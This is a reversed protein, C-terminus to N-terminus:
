EGSIESVFLVGTSECYCQKANCTLYESGNAHQNQEVTSIVREAPEPQGYPPEVSHPQPFVGRTADITGSRDGLQVTDELNPNGMVDSVANGSTAPGQRETTTGNVLVSGSGRPLDGASGTASDGATFQASM